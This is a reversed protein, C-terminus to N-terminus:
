PNKRQWRWLLALGLLAIGTLVPVAVSPDIGFSTVQRDVVTLHTVSGDLNTLTITTGVPANDLNTGM